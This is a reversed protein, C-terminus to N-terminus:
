GVAGTRPPRPPRPAAGGIGAQFCDLRSELRRALPAVLHFADRLIPGLDDGALAVEMAARDRDEGHGRLRLVAVTEPRERRPEPADGEAVRLRELARDSRVGRR